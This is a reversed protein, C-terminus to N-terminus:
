HKAYLELREYSAALLVVASYNLEIEHPSFVTLIAQGKRLREGGSAHRKCIYTGAAVQFIIWNM